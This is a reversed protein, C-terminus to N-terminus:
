GRWLMSRKLPPIKSWILVLFGGLFITKMYLDKKSYVIVWGEGLREKVIFKIGNINVTQKTCFCGMKLILSLGLTNMTPLKNVTVDKWFLMHLM